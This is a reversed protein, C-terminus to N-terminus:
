KEGDGKVQQLKDKIVDPVLVNLKGLNEIVSLGERSIYFFIAGTRCIGNLDLWPDIQTALGIVALVVAKRIGGWFMVDSDVKRIKVAYLLGTVYDLAILYLLVQVGKDWGGLWGTVGTAIIAIVGSISFEKSTSGAAATLLTLGLQKLM